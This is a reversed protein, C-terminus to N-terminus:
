VLFETQFSHRLLGEGETHQLHKGKAKLSPQDATAAPFQPALLRRKGFSRRNGSVVYYTAPMVIANHITRYYMAVAQLLYLKHLCILTTLARCM